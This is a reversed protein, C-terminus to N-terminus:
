SLSNLAQGIRETDGLEWFWALGLCFRICASSVQGCGQAAKITRCQRGMKPGAQTQGVTGLSIEWAPCRAQSGRYVM